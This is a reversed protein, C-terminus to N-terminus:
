PTEGLGPTWSYTMHTHADILGPIGTYRSLDIVKAGAPIAGNATVSAVHDGDVVVVAHPIVQHGDWLARFKIATAAGADMPVALLLLTALFAGFRIM